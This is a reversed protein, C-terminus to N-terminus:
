CKIAEELNLIGIEVCTKRKGVLAREIDSGATFDNTAFIIFRNRFKASDRIGNILNLFKIDYKDQITHSPQSAVNLKKLTLYINRNRDLRYKFSTTKKISETFIKGAKGHGAKSLGTQYDKLIEATVALVISDGKPDCSINEVVHALWDRLVQLLNPSEYKKILDPFINTDLIIMLNNKCLM